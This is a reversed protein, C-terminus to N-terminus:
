AAPSLETGVHPTTPACRRDADQQCKLCLAAWPLAALRKESISEQCERCLGYTGRAIRDLARTIQRFLAANRDLTAVALDRDNAFVWEDISDPVREIAVAVSRAKQNSAVLEARKAELARKCREISQRNMSRRRKEGKGQAAATLLSALDRTPRVAIPLMGRIV